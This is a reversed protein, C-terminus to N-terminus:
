SRMGIPENGNYVGGCKNIMSGSTNDITGADNQLLAPHIVKIHYHSLTVQNPPPRRKKGM